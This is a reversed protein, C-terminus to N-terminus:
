WCFSFLTHSFFCVNIRIKHYLFVHIIAFLLENRNFFVCLECLVCYKRALWCCCCLFFPVLHSSYFLRHVSACFPIVHPQSFRAQVPRIIQRTNTQIYQHPIQASLSRAYGIFTRTSDMRQSHVCYIYIYIAGFFAGCIYVENACVKQEHTVKRTLKCTQTGDIQRQIRKRIHSNSKSRVRRFLKSHKLICKNIIKPKEVNGLRETNTSTNTFFIQSVAFFCLFKEVKSALTIRHTQTQQRFVVSFYSSRSFFLGNYACCM